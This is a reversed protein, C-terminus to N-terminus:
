TKAAGIKKPLMKQSITPIRHNRTHTMYVKGERYNVLIICITHKTIYAYLLSDVVILCQELLFCFFLTPISCCFSM